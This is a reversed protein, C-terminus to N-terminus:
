DGLPLSQLFAFEQADSRHPKPLLRASPDSRISRSDKAQAGPYTHRDGHRHLYQGHADMINLDPCPQGLLLAFLLRPAYTRACVAPCSSRRM